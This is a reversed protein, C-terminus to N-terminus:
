KRKRKPSIPPHQEGLVATRSEAPTAPAESPGGDRASEGAQAPFAEAQGRAELVAPPTLLVGPSAAAVPQPESVSPSPSVDLAAGTTGHVGAQKPVMRADRLALPIRKRKTYWPWHSPTEM